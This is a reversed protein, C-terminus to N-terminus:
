GANSECSDEAWTFGKMWGMDADGRPSLMFSWGDVGTFLFIVDEGTRIHGTVPAAADRASHLVLDKGRWGFCASEYEDAIPIDVMQMRAAIHEIGLRTRSTDINCGLTEELRKTETVIIQDAPDAEAVDTFCDSNDFVAQGLPSSFCYGARDFVLNRTFWWEECHDLAFAPTVCLSLLFTLVFRM